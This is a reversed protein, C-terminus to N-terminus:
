NKIKYYNTYLSLNELCRISDEGTGFKSGDDVGKVAMAPMVIATAIGLLFYKVKM